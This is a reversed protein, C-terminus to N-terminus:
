SSIKAFAISNTPFEWPGSQTFASRYFKLLSRVQGSRGAMENRRMASFQNVEDSLGGSRRFQLGVRFFPRRPVQGRALNTIQLQQNGAAKRRQTSKHRAGIVFAYAM